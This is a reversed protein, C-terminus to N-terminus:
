ANRKGGYVDPATDAWAFIQGEKVNRWQGIDIQVAIQNENAFNEWWDHLEVGYLGAPPSVDEGELAEEIAGKLLADWTNEDPTAQVSSYYERRDQYRIFYINM